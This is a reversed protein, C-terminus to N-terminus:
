SRKLGSGLLWLIVLQVVPFGFYNVWPAYTTPIITGLYGFLVAFLVMAIVAIARNEKGFVGFLGLIAFLLWISAGSLAKL